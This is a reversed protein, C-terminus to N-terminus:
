IFAFNGILIVNPDEGWGGGGGGGGGGGVCVCVGGADRVFPFYASV